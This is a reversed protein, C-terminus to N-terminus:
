ILIVSGLVHIYHGDQHHHALLQSLCSGVGCTLFGALWNLNPTQGM